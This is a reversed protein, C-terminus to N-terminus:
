KVCASSKSCTKEKERVYYRAWRLVHAAAQRRSAAFVFPIGYRVEFAAVSARISRPLALSFPFKEVELASYPAEVLVRKFAFKALREMERVFRPRDHTLSGVLDELSKREIAFEAEMGQISYDATKLTGVTNWHPPIPLPAQERTDTVIKFNPILRFTRRKKM